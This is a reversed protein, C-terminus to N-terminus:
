KALAGFAGKLRPAAYDLFTRTKLPLYAGQEYILHVSKPPTRFAELVLTLAGARRPKDIQYDLMRTIGVGAVAADVAAEATTVVLRSHAPKESAQM